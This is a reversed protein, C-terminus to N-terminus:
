FFFRVTALHVRAPVSASLDLLTHCSTQSFYRCSMKALLGKKRWHETFKEELLKHVSGAPHNNHFFM